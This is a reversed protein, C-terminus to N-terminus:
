CAPLYYKGMETARATKRAFSYKTGDNVGRMALIRGGFLFKKEVVSNLQVVIQSLNLSLAKKNFPM